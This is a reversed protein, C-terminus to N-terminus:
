LAKMYLKLTSISKGVFRIIEITQSSDNDKAEVIDTMHTILKKIANPNYKIAPISLSKCKAETAKTYLALLASRIFQDQSLINESKPFATAFLHYCLLKGSPLPIVEGVNLPGHKEVYVNCARSISDGGADVVTTVVEENNILNPDTIILIAHTYQHSLDAEVIQITVDSEKRKISISNLIKDNILMNVHHSTPLVGGYLERAADKYNLTNKEMVYETFIEPLLVYEITKYRDPFSRIKMKIPWKGKLDFVTEQVLEESLIEHHIHHLLSAFPFDSDGIYPEMQRRIIQAEDLALKRFQNLSSSKKFAMIRESRLHYNSSYSSDSVLNVLFDRKLNIFDIFPKLLSDDGNTLSSNSSPSSSM